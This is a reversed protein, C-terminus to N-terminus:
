SSIFNRILIIDVTSFLTVAEHITKLMVTLNCRDIVDLGAARVQRILNRFGPHLEPAGGTLDLCSFGRAALVEPILELLENAMM